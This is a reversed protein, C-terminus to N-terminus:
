RRGCAGGGGEALFGAAQTSNRDDSTKGFPGRRPATRTRGSVLEAECARRGRRRAARGGGGCPQAAKAPQLWMCCRGCGGCPRAAHARAAGGAPEARWSALQGAPTGQGPRASPGHPRRARVEAVRPSSRQPSATSACARATSSRATRRARWWWRWAQTMRRRRFVCVVVRVVCARRRRLRFPLRVDSPLWSQSRGRQCGHAAPPLQV